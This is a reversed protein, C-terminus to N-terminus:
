LSKQCELLQELMRYGLVENVANMHTNVDANSTVIAACGPYAARVARHTALKMGLGLRHGRAEPMVMTVGIYGIRPDQRSVRVDAVGVLRGEPSLAAAYFRSQGIREARSESQRLREVTWEGDELELDGLPVMAMFGGLMAVLDEVYQDPCAGAWTVIRHDGRAAEVEAELAAWGPEASALGIAKAGERNAVVYGRAESFATGASTGGPPAFVEVLARARGAARARREVEELLLTGIGRRRAAWDVYVDFYSMQLNDSMPLNVLGAGVMEEGEYAGFLEVQFDPHPTPLAVRAVEWPAAFDLPRDSQADHHIEWWRHLSPEDTLDIDRIEFM